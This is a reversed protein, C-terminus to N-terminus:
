SIFGVYDSILCSQPVLGVEEYLSHLNAKETVKGHCRKWNLFFLM